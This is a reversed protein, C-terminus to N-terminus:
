AQEAAIWARAEAAQSTAFVRVNGPMLFRFANVTHRVWETDTVVAIREWRSLHEMGVKFDEWMAGAEMGSFEKGLDYYFRIKSHKQLAREVRPVLIKQYDEKTVVGRASAAVVNEPFDALMEIM